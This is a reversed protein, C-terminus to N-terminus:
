LWYRCCQVGTAAELVASKFWRWSVEVLDRVIKNSGRLKENLKEQSDSNVSENRLKMQPLNLVQLMFVMEEYWTIDHGQM